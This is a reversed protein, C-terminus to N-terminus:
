CTQAVSVAETLVCAAVLSVCLHTQPRVTTEADGLQIFAEDAAAMETTAATELSVAQDRAAQAVAIIVVRIQNGHM